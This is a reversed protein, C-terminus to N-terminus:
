NNLAHTMETELMVEDGCLNIQIPAKGTLNVVRVQDPTVTVKLQQDRWDIQYELKTWEKPLIPDIRLSGGLMRLGGFGYVVGQWIGGFSAAHVGADSTTMVPGLDIKTSQEFFDYAMDLERMDAALVAHTSMSLSSDHLTRAAYYEWTAKKVEQPFLDELLFFLVLVDAQKSVQIENIQPMNYDRCIGGIFDQARYKSLDIDQLTLYTSDQPLVGDENPVPLYIKDVKEKWEEYYQDLQLKENLREFIKPHGAKLDEYYQIATKINWVAMYNTFANDTKHEKYEDPGVVDCIHYLGDETDTETLVIENTEPDLTEKIQRCKNELRSVWFRATDFILEYGCKDMYDQDGTIMYYQWVGFAVDSTIHQEIFGTWVKNPRGTVVDVDLFEPTVEGDDLWASEWPYMAGAYGNAAAKAHAGPLSLYRYEELRRAVKPQTFMYYPLLFIETDWFCHGKYGEGTLSKAGINMRSDHAPVMLRMHYQAFRIAFQDYDNGEITIPVPDWVEEKWEEASEGALAHYGVTEMDKLETLAISQMEEQSKGNMDIDRDTYVDCYKEMVLTEDQKVDVNFIGYIKRLKMYIEIPVDIKKEDKMFQHCTSVVFTIESQTTVPVFQMYVGDYLRKDGDTFHQAGTNTVQGNIGSSMEVSVDGSLPTLEIRIAFDHLRKLSVIRYFTLKVQDGQPSTWVIERKLEGTYINLEKTYSEIEGQDLTFREGNIRIDINTMDPVNPLETVATDDAKNFTGNVLLNRTEGLYQEEAASRLGMYGNGLAMIAETKGLHDHDYCDERLIWDKAKSYDMGM